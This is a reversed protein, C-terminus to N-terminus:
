QQTKVSCMRKYYWQVFEYYRDFGLKDMGKLIDDAAITIRDQEKALDNAESTLFLIFETTCEQMTEKADKSM